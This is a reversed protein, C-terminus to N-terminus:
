GREALEDKSNLIRGEEFERMYQVDCDKSYHLAELISAYADAKRTWWQEARFRSLALRVTVYASVIAVMVGVALSTLFTTM